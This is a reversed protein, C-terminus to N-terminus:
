GARVVPFQMLSTLLAHALHRRVNAPLAGASRGAPEIEIVDVRLYRFAELGSDVLLDSQLMAVALEMQALQVFEPISDAAIECGDVDTQGTRPWARKQTSEARRWRYQEQDMRIAAHILAGETAPPSLAAADDWASSNPRTAFYADAEELTVYSNAAEGSVTEDIAM